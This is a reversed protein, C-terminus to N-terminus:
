ETRQILHLGFQTEVVDSLQGVELAFAAQDFSPVMAGPGFHGLDGGQASSPCASHEKALDAFSAGGEIQTKLDNIQTTADDSPSILIHSARIQSSM